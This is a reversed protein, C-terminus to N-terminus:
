AFREVDKTKAQYMKYLSMYYAVSNTNHHRNRKKNIHLVYYRKRYMYMFILIDAYTWIPINTHIYIKKKCGNCTM